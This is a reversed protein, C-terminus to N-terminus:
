LSFHKFVILEILLMSHTICTIDRQHLSTCRCMSSSLTIVSNPCMVLNDRCSVRELIDQIPVMTSDPDGSYSQTISYRTKDYM